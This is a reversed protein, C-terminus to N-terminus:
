DLDVFMAIDQADSPLEGSVARVSFTLDKGNLDASILEVVVPDASTDGVIAIAANPPDSKFGNGSEDSWLAAFGENSINGAKREPRDTFFLTSPSLDALTLKGDAYTLSGAQQVFLYSKQVPKQQPTPVESLETEDGPASREADKGTIADGTRKVGKEIADGTKEVGREIAKGTRKLGDGIDKLVQAHSLDASASSVFVAMTAAILAKPLHVLM